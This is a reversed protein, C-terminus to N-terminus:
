APWAQYLRYGRAPTLPADAKTNGKKGYVFRAIWYLEHLDRLGGKGEKINPEIVYRSNGEKNHRGDRAALKASIYSRIKARTREKRLLGVLEGAQMPPGTIIRLDLLASLVTDDTRALTICQDPTRIAHGVKLGMDWLMYLIYETIALSRESPNKAPTLFLLDLDSYPAMEGRGYGGVACLSLTEPKNETGPFVNAAAFKFLVQLLDDHLGSMSKATEIGSLKEGEFKGQLKTKWNQLAAKSQGLVKAKDQPDDIAKLDKYLAKASKTLFSM